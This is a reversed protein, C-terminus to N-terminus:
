IIRNCRLNRKGSVSKSVSELPAKKEKGWRQHVTSARFPFIGPGRFQSRPTWAADRQSLPVLTRAGRDRRRGRAPSAAVISRVLRPVKHRKLLWRERPAPVEKRLRNCRRRRPVVLGKGKGREQMKGREHSRHTERRPWSLTAYVQM